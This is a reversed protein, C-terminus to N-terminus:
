TFRHGFFDNLYFSFNQFAEGVGGEAHLEYITIVLPM